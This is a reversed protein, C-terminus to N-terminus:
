EDAKASKKFKGGLDQNGKPTEKLGQKEVKVLLRRHRDLFM